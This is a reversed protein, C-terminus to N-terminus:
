GAKRSMGHLPMVRGVSGLERSFLSSKTLLLKATRLIDREVARRTSPADGNRMADLIDAHTGGDWIHAHESLSFYMVPGSRLWLAEILPLLIDSNAAAYIGFHFAQNSRLIGLVNRERSHKTLERDIKLLSKLLAPPCHQCALEAAMGELLVRVQTLEKFRSETMVPVQVSRNPLTELVGAASLQSVVQRVPMLSTGLQEALSRLPLKQGPYFQGRMLARRLEEAIRDQLEGRRPRDTESPLTARAKAASAVAPPEAVRPITDRGRSM